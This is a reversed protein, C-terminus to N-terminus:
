CLCDHAHGHFGPVVGEIGLDQVAPGLSSHQLISHFTCKIDYSYLFPEAFVDILKNITALPYKM